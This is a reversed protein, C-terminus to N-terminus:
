GCGTKHTKQIKHLKHIRNETNEPNQFYNEQNKSWFLCAFCHLFFSCSTFLMHWNPLQIMAHFKKGNYCPKRSAKIISSYIKECIRFTLTGLIYNWYEHRRLIWMSNIELWDHEKFDYNWSLIKRHFDKFMLKSQRLFRCRVLSFTSKFIAHLRMKKVLNKYNELLKIWYCRQNTKINVM